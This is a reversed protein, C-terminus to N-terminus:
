RSSAAGGGTFRVVMASLSEALQSLERSSQTTDAAANASTGVQAAVAGVTGALGTATQSVARIGTAVSKSVRDTERVESTLLQVGEGQQTVARNIAISVEYVREIANGISGIAQVSDQTSTQMAGIRERIDETADATQRALEKVENAVVAFGKGSEGARAAEITANLALLNIQDAIDEIVEIVKGIQEAAGGLAAISENNTRVAAAAEAACEKATRTNNSIDAIAGSFEELQTRCRTLNDSIRECEGAMTGVSASLGEVAAAANSSNSAMLDTTSEMQSATAALETSAASLTSTNGAITAIASRVRAVFRNFASALAGLEDDREFDIRADLGGNGAAVTEFNQQLIRLPAVTNRVLWWTAVAALLTALVLAAGFGWASRAATAGIRDAFQRLESALATEMAALGDIKATFAAFCEAADVGFVGSDARDTAIQRLQDCRTFARSRTVDDYQSRASPSAYSVFLGLLAAQKAQLAIVRALMGPAFRDAAFTNTLIAREIGAQDKAQLFTDLAVMSRAIRADGSARAAVGVVAILRANCATFYGLADALVAEKSSIQARVEGIRALQGLGEDIASRFDASMSVGNAPERVAELDRRHRDVLERQTALESAFQSGKSGLFGATFGREKQLEHVLEAAKVCVDSLPLLAAMERAVVVEGVLKFSGFAIGTLLLGVSVVTIRRSVNM